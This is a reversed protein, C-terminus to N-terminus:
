WFSQYASLTLQSRNAWGFPAIVKINVAEGGAFIKLDGAALMATLDNVNLVAEQATPTCVGGSCDMNQTKHKSIQLM